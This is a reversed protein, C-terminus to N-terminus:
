KIFSGAGSATGLLYKMDQDIFDLGLGFIFNRAKANLLNDAGIYADLHKLFRQRYLLTLHAKDGRLDNVADFDYIDASIKGRNQFLYYDVGLGGTNEILGLRLRL